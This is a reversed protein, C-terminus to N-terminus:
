PWYIWRVSICGLYSCLPHLTLCRMCVFMVDGRYCTETSRGEVQTTWKARLWWVVVCNRLHHPLIYCLSTLYVLPLSSHIVSRLHVSYNTKFSWPKGCSCMGGGVGRVAIKVYCAFNSISVIPFMVWAAPFQQSLISLIIHAYCVARM